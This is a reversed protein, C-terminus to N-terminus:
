QAADEVPEHLMLHDLIHKEFATYIATYEPACHSKCEDLLTLAKEKDEEEYLAYVMNCHMQKLKLFEESFALSPDGLLAFARVQYRSTQVPITELTACEPLQGRTTECILLNHGAEKCHRALDNALDVCKGLPAYRFHRRTGTEGLTALGTSIGIDLTVEHNKMNKHSFRFRDKTNFRQMQKQMDGATRRAHSAHFPDDLPANWYASLGSTRLTNLTGHQAHVDELHATQFSNSFSALDHPSLGEYYQHFHRLRTSLCTIERQQGELALQEPTNLMKQMQKPSLISAYREATQTRHSKLTVRRITCSSAFILLLILSPFLPELLIKELAFQHFAVGNVLFIALLTFSLSFWVTQTAAVITVSLGILIIATIEIYQSWNPITIFRANQLTQLAQAHRQSSRQQTGIVVYSEPSPPWVSAAVTGNLINNASLIYDSSARAKHIFMEKTSTVPVAFGNVNLFGSQESMTTAVPPASAGLNWAMLALSPQQQEGSSHQLPYLLSASGNAYHEDAQYGSARSFRIYNSLPPRNAVADSLPRNLLVSHHSVITQLLLDHNPYTTKISPQLSDYINGRLTPSAPDVKRLDVDILVLKPNYQGINQLVQALELRQYVPPQTQQHSQPTLHVTYVPLAPATNSWSLQLANQSLYAVGDLAQPYLTRTILAIAIILLSVVAALARNTQSLWGTDFM